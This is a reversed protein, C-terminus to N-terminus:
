GRCVSPLFEDRVSTKNMQNGQQRNCHWRNIHMPGSYVEQDVFFSLIDGEKFPAEQNLKFHLGGDVSSSVGDVVSSGYGGLVYDVNQERWGGTLGYLEGIEAKVVTVAMFVETLKAKAFFREANHLAFSTCVGLVIVFTSFEITFKHPILFNQYQHQRQSVGTLGVGKKKRANTRALGQELRRHRQVIVRNIESAKSQLGCVALLSFIFVFFFVEVSFSWSVLSVLVYAVGFWWQACGPKIGAVHTSGKIVSILSLIFFPYFVARLFPSISLDGSTYQIAKWSKYHWYHEYLGLTAIYLVVLTTTRTEYYPNVWPNSVDM